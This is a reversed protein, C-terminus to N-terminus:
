PRQQRQIQRWIILEEVSTKVEAETEEWDTKIKTEKPEQSTETRAKMTELCTELMAKMDEHYIGTRSILTSVQARMKEQGNDM